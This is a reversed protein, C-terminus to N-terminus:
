STATLGSKADNMLMYNLRKQCLWPKLKEKNTIPLQGSNKEDLNVSM